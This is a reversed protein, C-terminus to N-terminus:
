LLIQKSVLPLSQAGGEPVPLPLSHVGSAVQAQGLPLEITNLEIKGSPALM